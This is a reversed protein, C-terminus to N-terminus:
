QWKGLVMQVLLDRAKRLRESDLDELAAIERRTEQVIENLINQAAIEADKIGQEMQVQLEMRLRELRQKVAKEAEVIARAREEEARAIIEKAREETSRIEQIIDQSQGEM